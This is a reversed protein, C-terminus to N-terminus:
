SAERDAPEGELMALLRAMPVLLRRSLRLTPLSGDRAAAYATSRGIGLLRAAEEVSCTSRERLDALEALQERM